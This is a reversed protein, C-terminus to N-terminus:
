ARADSQWKQLLKILGTKERNEAYSLATAGEPTVANKKGGKSLLAVAIRVSEEDSLSNSLACLHLPSMQMIDLRNPDAGCQLLFLAADARGYLIALHLGTFGQLIEDVENGAKVAQSLREMEGDRASKAVPSAPAIFRGDDHQEVQIDEAEPRLLLNRGSVTVKFGAEGIGDSWQGQTDKTLSALDASSLPSPSWYDTYVRLRGTKDCAFRISGGVVGIDGLSSDLHDGCQDHYQWGDLLRLVSDEEVLKEPDTNMDWVTARGSFTIKV